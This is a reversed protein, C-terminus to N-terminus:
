ECRLPSRGDQYRDWASLITEEGPRVNFEEEYLVVGDRSMRARHNGPRLDCIIPTQHLDEVHYVSQDVVVDVRPVPVHVIARGRPPGSHEAVQWLVITGLVFTGVRKGLTLALSQWLM